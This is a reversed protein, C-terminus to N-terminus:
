SRTALPVSTTRHQDDAGYDRAMYARTRDRALQHHNMTRGRDKVMSCIYSYVWM